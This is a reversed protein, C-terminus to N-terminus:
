KVLSVWAIIDQLGHALAVPALRRFALFTGSYILGLMFAGIVGTPGQYGHYAAFLTTSILCAAAMSHTLQSLRRLLYARMVLEEALGNALCMVVLLGYELLGSPLSFASPDRKTVWAIMSVSLVGYLISWLVRHAVKGLLFVVIGGWFDPAMKLGCIGFSRWPEGSRWIIFLILAIEGFSHLLRSAAQFAFSAAPGKPPSWAFSNFLNPLVILLLVVSIEIWLLRSDPKSAEPQVHVGPEVKLQPVEEM